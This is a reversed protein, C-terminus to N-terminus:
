AGGGAECLFEIEDAKRGVVARGKIDWIQGRAFIRDGPTIAAVAVSGRVRITATAASEMRGAALRERGLTELLNGWTRLIGEDWGGEPNGYADRGTRKRDFRLRDRMMGARM